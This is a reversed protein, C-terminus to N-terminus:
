HKKHDQCRIWRARSENQFFCNQYLHANQTGDVYSERIIFHCRDVNIGNLNNTVLADLFDEITANRAETEFSGTWGMYVVDSEPIPNGVYLHRSFSADQSISVKTIADFIEETGNRYIKFLAQHGRLTANPM